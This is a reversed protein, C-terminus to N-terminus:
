DMGCAQARAWDIREGQPRWPACIVFALRWVGLFEAIQFNENKAIQKLNPTQRKPNRQHKHTQLKPNKQAM